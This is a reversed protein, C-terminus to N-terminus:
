ADAGARKGPRVVLVSCPARQAVAASVSGLLFRDLTGLGRSGVVILDVDLERARRCIVEAPPGTQLETRCPVVGEALARAEALIRQGRAEAAAAAQRVEVRSMPNRPPTPVAVHLITLTSECLRALLVAQQCVAGTTPSGDVALLIHRPLPGADAM